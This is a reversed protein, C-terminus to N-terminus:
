QFYFTHLTCTKSLAKQTKHTSTGLLKDKYIEYVNSTNTVCGENKAMCKRIYHSTGKTGFYSTCSDDHESFSILITFLAIFQM